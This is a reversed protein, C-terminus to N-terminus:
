GSVGIMAKIKKIFITHEQKWDTLKKTIYPLFNTKWSKEVSNAKEFFIKLNFDEQASNFYLMEFGFRILLDQIKSQGPPLHWDRELSIFPTQNLLCFITGHFRDSICFNLYRFAEAWEFPTLVHGLNIDAEPLLMGLALIQYGRSKYYKYIESGLKRDGSFALGLTPNTPNWGMSQLKEFVQTRPFDYTFTPDPILDLIEQPCKRYKQVLEMTFRDRSGIMNFESLFGSIKESFRNILKLDSNYASVAYAIKIIEPGSPNWYLNPFKPRETRVTLCWVDMGTVIAKYSKSIIRRAWEENIGIPFGSNLRLNEKIQKEWLIARQNYFWPASQTIKFRKFYEYLALRPSKYNIIDIDYASLEKQLLKQLSYSFLFAGNNPIYHYTLIGLKPKM